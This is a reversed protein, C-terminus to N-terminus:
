TQHNHWGGNHNVTGAAQEVFLKHHDFPVQDRMVYYAARALKHALASHAVMFNTKAAKRNYYSRAFPDGILFYTLFFCWGMLLFIM